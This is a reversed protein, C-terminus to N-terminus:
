ERGPGWIASFWLTSIILCNDSYPGRALYDGLEDLIGWGIHITYSRSEANVVVTQM